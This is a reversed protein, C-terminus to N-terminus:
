QHLPGCIAYNGAFAQPATAQLHEDPCCHLACVQRHGTTGLFSGRVLDKHVDHLVKHVSAAQPREAPATALCAITVLSLSFPASSPLRGFGPRLRPRAGRGDHVVPSCNQTYVCWILAGLAYVDDAQTTAAGSALRELAMEAGCLQKM